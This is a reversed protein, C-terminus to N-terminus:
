VARIAVVTMDDAQDAGHMFEDAKGALLEALQQATTSCGSRVLTEIESESWFDGNQNCAESIGDSFCVIMDGARLESTGEEYEAVPLLGVPIGGTGLRELTLDGSGSRILIPHCHGANVYNLRRSVPHYLGCFLTSYHGTSTAENISTNLERILLPLSQTGHRLPIRLSAQISAMLVAAPIGKGSVDGATFALAGAPTQVFDYYDGGVFRAPRFWAACELGPLAPPAHPLLASQVERAIELEYRLLRAAEAEKRLRQTEIAAASYSGAMGLLAVDRENFGGAKNLAQFAGIVTGEAGRLPIVLASNTLYGSGEDVRNLFRHDASTDNVLVPEARTVCAGVLGDGFAIRIEGAGHAVRTYLQKGAPDVLWISCRDAGVLDRAMDANLRLIADADQERAIQAAYQFIVRSIQQSAEADRLDAATGSWM